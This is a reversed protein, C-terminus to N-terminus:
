ALRVDFLSPQLAPQALAAEFSPAPGSTAWAITGAAGCRACRWDFVRSSRQVYVIRTGCDCRGNAEQTGKM